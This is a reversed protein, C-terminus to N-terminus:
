IFLVRNFFLKTTSITQWSYSMLNIIPESKESDKHGPVQAFHFGPVGLPLGNGCFGVSCARTVTTVLSLMQDATKM